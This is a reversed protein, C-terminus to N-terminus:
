FVVKEGNGVQRLIKLIEKETLSSVDKKTMGTARDLVPNERPRAADAAVTRAMRRGAERAAHRMAAAMIEELHAAEYALRVPAGAKLLATFGRDGRLAKELSFGPYIEQLAAAEEEWLRATRAAAKLRLAAAAKRLLEGGDPLNTEGATKDEAGAAQGGTGEADKGAVDGAAGEGNGTAATPKEAAKAGGTETGASPKEAKKGDPASQKTGQGDKGAADASAGATEAAGGNDGAASGAGDFYRLDLIARKM